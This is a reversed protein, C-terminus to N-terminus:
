GTVTQVALEYWRNVCASLVAITRHCAATSCGDQPVGPRHLKMSARVLHSSAATFAAMSLPTRCTTMTAAPKSM